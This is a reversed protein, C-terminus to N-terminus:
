REKCADYCKPKKVKYTNFGVPKSERGRWCFFPHFEPAQPLLQSSVATSVVCCTRCVPSSGGAAMTVCHLLSAATVTHLSCGDGFRSWGELQHCTGAPCRYSLCGHWVWVAEKGDGSVLLFFDHKLSPISLCLFSVPPSFFVVGSLM